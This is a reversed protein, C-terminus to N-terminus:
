IRERKLGLYKVRADCNRINRRPLRRYCVSGETPYYKQLISDEESTWGLVKETGNRVSKITLLLEIADNIGFDKIYKRLTEPSCGLYYSLSQQDPYLVGEVVYGRECLTGVM